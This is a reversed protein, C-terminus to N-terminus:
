GFATMATRASTLEESFNEIGDVNWM